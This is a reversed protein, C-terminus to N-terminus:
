ARVVRRVAVGEPGTVRVVYVGPPLDAGDFTLTHAGAALVGDHLLAVRRGLADFAEARVHAPATLVLALTAERVTPNPAPQGLAFPAPAGETATQGADNLFRMAVLSRTEFDAQRFGAALLRGDADLAAASAFGGEGGLTVRAVGDTGFMPDLVGAASYRAVVAPAGPATGATGTVLVKGDPQLVLHTGAAATGGFTTTVRGATGFSSDFEGDPKLRALLLALAPFGSAGALYPRGEADLDLDCIIGLTSGFDLPRVGATGFTSDPRGDATFRALFPALNFTAGQYGAALLRGDPLAVLGTVVASADPFALRAVGGAGFSADLTGDPTLRVLVGDAASSSGTIMAAGAAVTRGDPLLLVRTFHARETDGGLDAVGDTGFTSDRVGDATVQVIGGRGAFDFLLGSYTVGIAALVRGDPRVALDVAAQDSGQAARVDVWGGTGFAADFGGAADLRFISPQGYVRGALLLHGDALPRIAWGGHDGDGQAITVRGGVGFTADLTGSQATALAPLFAALALLRLTRM